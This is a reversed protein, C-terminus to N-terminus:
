GRGGEAARGLGRGRWRDQRVEATARTTGKHPKDREAEELIKTAEELSTSRFMKPRLNEFTDDIM